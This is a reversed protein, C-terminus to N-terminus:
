EMQQGYGPHRGSNLFLLSANVEQWFKPSTHHTFFICFEEAFVATCFNRFICFHAFFAPFKKNGHTARTAAMRASGTLKLGTARVATICHFATVCACFDRVLCFGKGSKKGTCSIFGASFFDAL